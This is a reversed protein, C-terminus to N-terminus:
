SLEQWESAEMESFLLRHLASLSLAGAAAMLLLTTSGEKTAVARAVARGTTAFLDSVAVGAGAFSALWAGARIGFALCSALLEVVPEQIGVGYVAAGAVAILIAWGAATSGAHRLPLRGTPVPERSVAQMTRSVFGPSPEPREASRFLESLKAELDDEHKM